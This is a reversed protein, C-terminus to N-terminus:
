GGTDGVVGSTNSRGVGARAASRTRKPADPTPRTVGKPLMTQDDVAHKQLTQQKLDELAARGGRELDDVPTNGADTAPLHRRGWIGLSVVVDLLDVGMPTLSYVAMQRHDPHGHRTLVGADVLRALRDSLVTTSIGEESQLLERFRRKDTFALDRIILLSWRDGVVELAQSIPCQSRQTLSVDLV